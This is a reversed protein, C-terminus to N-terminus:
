SRITNYTGLAGSSESSTSFSVIFRQSMTSRSVTSTSTRRTAIIIMAEKSVFEM